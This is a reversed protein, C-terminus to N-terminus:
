ISYDLGGQNRNNEALEDLTIGDLYTNVVKDLGAWVPLTACGICRPCQNPDDEMCAVPALNGEVARLIDGVTYDKATHALRYGGDKGRSSKLYGVKSLLPIIQELYKITIEQRASVSKLPIFEGTNNIALDVMVRLAYRGRTSIRM